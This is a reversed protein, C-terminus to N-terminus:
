DWWGDGSNSNPNETNDNILPWIECSEQDPVLIIKSMGIEKIIVNFQMGRILEIEFTGTSTTHVVTPFAYVGYSSSITSSIPLAYVRGCIIPDSNHDILTGTIKCTGPADPLKGVYLPASVVFSNVFTITEEGDFPEIFIKDYYTQSTTLRNVTYIYIGESVKTIDETPITQIIDKDNDADDQTGHITVKEIYFPDISVGDKIFQFLLNTAELTTADFRSGM